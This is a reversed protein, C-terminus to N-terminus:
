LVHKMLDILVSPYRRTNYIQYFIATPAKFVLVYYSVKKEARQGQQVFNITARALAVFSATTESACASSNPRKLVRLLKV